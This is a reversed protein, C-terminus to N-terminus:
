KTKVLLFLFYPAGIVAVVIGVPIETPQLITRAIADATVLLLSGLLASVPLMYQHQPGVLRRALHPGILGLFGIGGGVAVCSGALGVATLILWFQEKKLSAGLGTAVHDGLNMVNLVKSKYMSFPILVMIWPLLALVFKWNTGWINGALWTAVFQFNEPSLRITLVLTLAYVGAAVAIGVLILRIPSIGENKKYALIYIIFATLGAGLLALVPIMFVPATEKSPYYSIFLIVALGAGANIGLIGPDALGNKSVGQLIAGATALGAGVLIAIVIRPLRFDFLILHQKSTGGGFLTKIVDLPALRIFGTNMSVIFMLVVLVSLIVVISTFRLKKRQGRLHQAM